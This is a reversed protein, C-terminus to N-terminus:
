VTLNGLTGYYLGDVLFTYWILKPINGGIGISVQDIAAQLNASALETSANVRPDQLNPLGGITFTGADSGNIEGRSTALSFKRPVKKQKFIENMISKSPINTLNRTPEDNTGNTATSDAPFNSTGPSFGLGLLGSAWSELSPDSQMRTLAFDRLCFTNLSVLRNVVGVEATITLGALTVPATGPIGTIHMPSYLVHLMERPIETFADDIHYLPGIDCDAQPHGKQNIICTFDSSALWTDSSGTDVLVKFSQSGFAIDTYVFPHARDASNNRM